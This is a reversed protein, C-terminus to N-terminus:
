EGNTVKTVYPGSDQEPLAGGTLGDSPYGPPAAPGEPEPHGCPQCTKKVTMDLDLLTAVGPLISLM